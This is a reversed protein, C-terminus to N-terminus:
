DSIVFSTVDSTLGFGPSYLAAAQVFVELGVLERPLTPLLVGQGGAPPGSYIKVVVTSSPDLLIPGDFGPLAPGEGLGFSALIVIQSLPYSFVLLTTEQGLGKQDVEIAPGSAIGSGGRYIEAVGKGVAAVERRGDGDADALTTLAVQRTRTDAVWMRAGVDSDVAYVYNDLSTGYLEETGNGDVDGGAVIQLVAGTNFPSVERRFHFWGNAVLVGNLANDFSGVALDDRGDGDIDDFTTISTVNRFIADSEWLAGGDALSVARLCAAFDDHEGVIVDGLGDDDIDDVPLVASGPGDLAVRWLESGDAGSLLTVFPAADGGTAVVDPVGDGNADDTPRVDVNGEGTSAFWVTSGDAGSLLAVGNVRHGGAALLDDVGDDSLDDVFRVTHVAAPDGADTPALDRGWLLAGGAADRLEVAGGPSTAGVALRGDRADLGGFWRVVGGRPSVAWLTEGSLGDLVAVHREGPKGDFGFAVDSAGDGTVDGVEIAARGTALDDRKAVIVGPSALATGFQISDVPDALLADVAEVVPDSPPAVLLAAVLPALM